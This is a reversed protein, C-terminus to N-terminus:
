ESWYRNYIFCSFVIRAQAIIGSFHKRPLADDLLNMILIGNIKNNTFCLCTFNFSFTFKNGKQRFIQTRRHFDNFQAWQVDPSIASFGSQKLTTTQPLISSGATAFNVGHAFNSGVADLFANM